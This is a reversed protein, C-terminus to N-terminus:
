KAVSYYEKWYKTNGNYLIDSKAFKKQSMRSNGKSSGCGTMAMAGIALSTVTTTKLFKRRTSESM